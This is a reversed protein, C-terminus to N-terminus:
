IETSCLNLTSKTKKECSNTRKSINLFENEYLKETIYSCRFTRLIPINNNSMKFIKNM